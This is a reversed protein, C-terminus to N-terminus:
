GRRAARPVVRAREVSPRKMDLDARDMEARGGKSGSVMSADVVFVVASERRIDEYWPCPYSGAEVGNEM